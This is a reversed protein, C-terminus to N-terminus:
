MSARSSVSLAMETNKGFHKISFDDDFAAGFVVLNDVTEEYYAKVITPFAGGSSSNNYEFSKFAYVRM